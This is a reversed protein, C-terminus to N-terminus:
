AHATPWSYIIWKSGFKLGLSLPMQLQVLSLPVIFVLIEGETIIKVELVVLATLVSSEVVEGKKREM